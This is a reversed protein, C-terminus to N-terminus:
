DSFFDLGGPEWGARRAALPKRYPPGLPGDLERENRENRLALSLITVM